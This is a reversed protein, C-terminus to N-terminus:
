LELALLLAAVPAAAVGLAALSRPWSWGHVTRIGIAVLAVAWLLLGAELARLVALPAGSDGGGSRFVDQGYLALRVPWLVLSLVLPAAAFGVLHRARRFSGLGGLLSAGFYVLGGAVLYGFLGHLGGALVAWVAILLGDYEPDDLLRGAVGTALVAAIGALFVIALLPEQRAHADEESDDRLAAFVPRPSQLVLLARLWWAREASLPRADAASPSAM